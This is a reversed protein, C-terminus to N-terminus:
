NNSIDYMYFVDDFNGDEDFFASMMLWSFASDVYDVTKVWDFVEQETDFWISQIVFDNEYRTGLCDDVLEAYYRQKKNPQTKKRRIHM